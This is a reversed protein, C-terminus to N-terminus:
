SEEYKSSYDNAIKCLRKTRNVFSNPDAADKLKALEMEAKAKELILEDRKKTLKAIRRDQFARGIFFSGLGLGIGIVTEILEKKM